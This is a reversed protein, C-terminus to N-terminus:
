KQQELYSIGQYYKVISRKLYYRLLANLQEAQANQYANAVTRFALPSILGHALQKANLKYAEEQVALRKQAQLFALQAGECDQFAREVETAVEQQVQKLNAQMRRYHNKKRSLNSFRSLHTYIPFSLSLQIYEGGNNRWQTAFSPAKYDKNGPYTYYSTSWGGSMSLSPLFQGRATHLHWKAQKLEAAALESKPLAHQAYALAAAKAEAGETLSLQPEEVTHTEVMLTDALPWFLLAKLDLLVENKLNRGALLQYEWDALDAEIQVVDAYGKLGMEYQRKVLQLSEKGSAVQAELVKNLQTHYVLNYYAQMVKLCIEDDLQQMRSRGMKVATKAIKVNNIAAFGDFLTMSASISYSNSLSTTSIYSNTEPDIARGFNTSLGSYAMISPTTASLIADRRQLLADSLNAQEKEKQPSHQLAYEMCDRLSLTQACTATSAALMMSLVINKTNM